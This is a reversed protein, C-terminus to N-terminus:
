KRIGDEVAKDFEEKTCPKNNTAPAEPKDEKIFFYKLGDKILYAGVMAMIALYIPAASMGGGANYAYDNTWSSSLNSMRAFDGDSGLLNFIFAIAGLIPPILFFFGICCEVKKAKILAKEENNM